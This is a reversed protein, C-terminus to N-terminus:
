KWFLAQETFGQQLETLDSKHVGPITPIIHIRRLGAINWPPITPVFPDIESLWTILSGISM